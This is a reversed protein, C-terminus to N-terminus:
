RFVSTISAGNCAWAPVFLLHFYLELGKAVKPSSRPPHDAGREPRKVGPLSGTDMTCSVLHTAPGTQVPVSFRVGWRSEIGPGDLGYRTEM